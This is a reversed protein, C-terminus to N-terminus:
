KQSEQQPLNILLYRHLIPYLFSHLSQDQQMLTNMEALLKKISLLENGTCRGLYSILFLTCGQLQCWLFTLESLQSSTGFAPHNAINPVPNTKSLVNHATRFRDLVAIRRATELHDLMEQSCFHAIFDALELLCFADDFRQMLDNSNAIDAAESLLIDLKFSEHYFIWADNDVSDLLSNVTKIVIKTCESVQVLYLLTDMGGYQQMMKTEGIEEIEIRGINENPGDAVWASVCKACAGLLESTAVNKVNSDKQTRIICIYRVISAITGELADRCQLLHESELEEWWLRRDINDHKKYEGKLFSVFLDFLAFCAVLVHIKSAVEHKHERTQVQDPNEVCRYRLETLLINVEISVLRLLLVVRNGNGGGCFPWGPGFKECLSLSLQLAAVRHLDPAQIGSQLVKFVGLSLADVLESDNVSYIYVDGVMADLQKQFFAALEVYVDSHEIKLHGALTVLVDKELPAPFQALLDIAVQRTEESRSSCTVVKAAGTIIELKLVQGPKVKVVTWLCVLCDRIAVDKVGPTSLIAVLRPVCESFADAVVECKSRSCFTSMIMLATDRFAGQEKETSLLRLLFGNKHLVELVKGQAEKFMEGDVHKTLVLLGAFVSEDSGGDLLRLVSEVVNKDSM